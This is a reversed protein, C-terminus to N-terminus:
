QDIFLQDSSHIRSNNKNEIFCLCPLSNYNYINMFYSIEEDTLYNDSIYLKEISSSQYSSFFDSFYGFLSGHLSSNNLHLETLSPLLQILRCIYDLIEPTMQIGNFKLIQIRFCTSIQSVCSFLWRFHISSLPTNTFDLKKVFPKKISLLYDYLCYFDSPLMTCKHFIFSEIFVLQPYKQLVQFFTSLINGPFSSNKFMIGILLGYRKTTLHTEINNLSLSDSYFQHEITKNAFQLICNICSPAGIPKNHIDKLKLQSNDQKRSMENLLSQAPSLRLFLSNSISSMGLQFSQQYMLVPQSVNILNESIKTKNLLKKQNNEKNARCKHLEKNHNRKQEEKITKSVTTSSSAHLKASLSHKSNERKYITDNNRHNYM